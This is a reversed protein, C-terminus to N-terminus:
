FYNEKRMKADVQFNLFFPLNSILDTLNLYRYFYVRISRQWTSAEHLIWGEFGVTPLCGLM